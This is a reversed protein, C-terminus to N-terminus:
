RVRARQLRLSEERIFENKSKLGTEILDKIDEYPYKKLTRYIEEKLRDIAGKFMISKGSLLARLTDLSRPDGIEGLAKVLPIKNYFDAGSISKKRLMQILETVVGKVKFTGSLTIAQEVAERSESHLCDKLAEIAYSDGANLLCKFAEFRVKLNEHHCYSRVHPLVEGKSCESLIYLMNRKVFWRDDGLRKIVEPIAKDGFYKILGLLFKRITQSDEKILVDMLPSIIIESYYECLLLTDERMQRGLIRFSDILQSIFEPSHYYQLAESTINPFRNDAANSELVKLINLVLGYQGTWIFQEAQEKLNMIFHKDDEESIVSSMLLELIMLNFDKEIYDDSFERKFEEAEETITKSTDFDLIKQIEKQYTDTVFVELNGEGLLSTIDPSLSIDDAILSEEFTTNEKSDKHLSSLKDLLNKLAAPIAVKQENITNLLVIVEDVSMGRLAKEASDLDQAVTSVASSLFQKKLEPRLRNIFDMLRKLEQSSFARESSKRMYTTIIKDYAEGKLHDTAVRNLLQALMEPSTGQMVDSSIGDTQLTGELLGYIYREWLQVNTTDKVTKGEEFSFAGYDVFGANIHILNREKLIEQLADASSNRVNESTLQHFTYLEDKTLGKIFTVYAINMRSLHLAFEKYVPNKRDLHYDDIILTGKAIALTIEPRLEFLRQLFGFAQSLSKEVSPHDKPYISVNRRSINLEIIADSLLRADLSIRESEDPM